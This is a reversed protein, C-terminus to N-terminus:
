GGNTLVVFRLPPADEASKWVRKASCCVYCRKESHTGEFGASCALPKVDALRPVQGKVSVRSLHLPQRQVGGEAMVGCVVLVQLKPSLYQVHVVDAGYMKGADSRVAISSSPEGRGWVKGMKAPRVV